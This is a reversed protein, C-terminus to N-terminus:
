LRFVNWIHYLWPLSSMSVNMIVVFKMRKNVVVPVRVTRRLGTPGQGTPDSIQGSPDVVGLLGRVSQGADQKM